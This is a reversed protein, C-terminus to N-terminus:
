KPAGNQRPDPVDPNAAYWEDLAAAVQQAERREAAAHREAREEDTLMVTGGSQKARKAVEVCREFQGGNGYIVQPGPPGKWWPDALNARILRGHAALDYRPQERIRGIICRLHDAATYSTGAQANFEGLIALALSAEAESVNKRGVKVPVNGGVPPTPPTNENKLRTVDPGGSVGDPGGSVPTDPGGSVEGAHDLPHYLSSTGPRRECVLWGGAELEAVADSVTSRPLGYDKAITRLGPWAVAKRGQYRLIIAYVRVATASVNSDRLLADPVIAYRNPSLGERM